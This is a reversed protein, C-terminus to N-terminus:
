TRGWLRPAVLMGALALAAALPWAFLADVSRLNQQDRPIPELTDLQAYIQELEASDRARFYSGGTVQAIERLTKEDLQASPNVRRLGFWTTEIQEDAGIGITYIKLERSAALQAAKLPTVEGATNAGDTMLILVRSNGSELDLRKIALGIADGIATREGALGIASERLLRNVTKSDFTLPSQLYAQTGFLILGLRDGRRREIFNSAVRKTATLRDVQKGEVLFDATRMSDSLDVALMLDRGSIPIAVSEGLWQPRSAALVLLLWALLSLLQRWRRPRISAQPAPGLRFDDLAPVRLAAQQQASRAPLAYYVLAPLPILLLALPWELQFM